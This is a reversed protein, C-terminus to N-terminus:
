PPIKRTQETRCSRPKKAVLFVQIFLIERQKNRKTNLFKIFERNERQLINLRPYFHFNIIQKWIISLTIVQKFHSLSNSISPKLLWPFERKTVHHQVVNRSHTTPKVDYATLM